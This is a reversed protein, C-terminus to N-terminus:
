EIVVDAAGDDSVRVTATAHVTPHTASALRLVYSGTAATGAVLLSSPPRAVLDLGAPLEWTWAPNGMVVPETVGGEWHVTAKVTAAELVASDWGAVFPDVGQRVRYEARDFAVSAPARGPSHPSPGGAPPTIGFLALFQPSCATATLTFAALLPLTLAPHFKM